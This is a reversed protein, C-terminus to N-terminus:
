SGQADAAYRGGARRVDDILHDLKSVAASDGAAVLERVAQLAALLEGVQPRADICDEGCDPCVATGAQSLDGIPQILKQRCSPCTWRLMDLLSPRDDVSPQPESVAASNSPEPVAAESEDEEVTLGVLRYEDQWRRDCAHCSVPQIAGGSNIEVFGGEIDPDGCYPCSVGGTALYHNVQQESLRM